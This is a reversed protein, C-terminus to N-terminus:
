LLLWLWLLSVGKAGTQISCYESDLLTLTHLDPHEESMQPRVQEHFM